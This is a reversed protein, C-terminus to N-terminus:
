RVTIYLCPISTASSKGPSNKFLHRSVLSRKRAYFSNARRRRETKFGDCFGTERKGIYRALNKDGTVTSGRAENGYRERFSKEQANVIFLAIRGHGKSELAKRKFRM